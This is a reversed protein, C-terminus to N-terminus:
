TGDGVKTELIGVFRLVGLAERVSPRSVGTLEAIEQESPLKDGVTYLGTSIAHLVEEVVHASRKKHQLKRFM